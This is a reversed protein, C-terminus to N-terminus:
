VAAIPGPMPARPGEDNVAAPSMNFTLVLEEPAPGLEPKPPCAADHIQNAIVVALNAITREHSARAQEPLETRLEKLHEYFACRVERMSPTFAACYADVLRVAHEERMSLYDKHFGFERVCTALTMMAELRM